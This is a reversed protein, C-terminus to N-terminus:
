PRPRRDTTSAPASGSPTLRRQGGTGATCTATPVEQALRAAVEHDRRPGIRRLVGDIRNGGLAGPGGLLTLRLCRAREHRAAEEIRTWASRPERPDDRRREDRWPRRHNSTGVRRTCGVFIAGAAARCPHHRRHAGGERRSCAFGGARRDTRQRSRLGRHGVHPHRRRGRRGGLRVGARV